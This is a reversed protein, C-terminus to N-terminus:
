PEMALYDGVDDSGIDFITVINPHQLSSALQAEQIFRQHRDADVVLHAPLLKLAVDRGLRSDHARYVEGMGGEGLKDVIRYPGILAGSPLPM